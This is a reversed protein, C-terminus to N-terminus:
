CAQSKNNKIKQVKLAMVLDSEKKKVLLVKAYSGKGLVTLLLFDEIKLKKSTPSKDM